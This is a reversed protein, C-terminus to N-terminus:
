KRRPPPRFFLRGFAQPRIQRQPNRARQLIWRSKRKQDLVLSAFFTIAVCVLVPSPTAAREIQAVVDAPRERNSLLKAVPVHSPSNAADYLSLKYKLGWTFVAMGLALVSLVFFNWKRTNKLNGM